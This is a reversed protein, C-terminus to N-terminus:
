LLGAAKLDRKMADPELLDRLQEAAKTMTTFYGHGKNIPKPKADAIHESLEFKDLSNERVHMLFLRGKINIRYFAPMEEIDDAPYFMIDAGGIISKIFKIQKANKIPADM